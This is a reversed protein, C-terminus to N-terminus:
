FRMVLGVGNQTAGLGFSYRPAQYPPPNFGLARQQNYIEIAKDRDNLSLFARYLVVGAIAAGSGVTIWEAENGWARGYTDSSSLLAIALFSWGLTGNNRRHGREFISAAVQNNNKLISYTELDSIKRGDATYYNSGFSRHYEIKPSKGDGSCPAFTEVKGSIFEIKEIVCPSMSVDEKGGEPLYVVETANMRHVSGELQKGDRLYIKSQAQIPTIAALTAFLFTFLIRTM